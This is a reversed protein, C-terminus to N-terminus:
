ILWLCTWFSLLESFMFLLFVSVWNQFRSFGFYGVPFALKLKGIRSIIKANLRDISKVLKHLQFTLDFHFTNYLIGLLMWRIQGPQLHIQTQVNKWQKRMIVNPSFFSHSSKTFPSHLAVSFVSLFDRTCFHKGFM